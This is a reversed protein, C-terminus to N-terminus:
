GLWTDQLTYGASALYKVEGGDTMATGKTRWNNMLHERMKHDDTPPWIFLSQVFHCKGAERDSSMWVKSMECKPHQLLPFQIPILLSKQTGSWYCCCSVLVGLNIEQKKGTGVWFLCLLSHLLLGASKWIDFQFLAWHVLNRHTSVWMIVEALYVLVGTDARDKDPIWVFGDAVTCGLYSNDSLGNSIHLCRLNWEGPLSIPFSLFSISLKPTRITLFTDEKMEELYCSPCQRHHAFLDSSLIFLLLLLIPFTSINSSYQLRM